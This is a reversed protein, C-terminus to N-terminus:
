FIYTMLLKVKKLCAEIYEEYRRWSKYELEDFSEIGIPDNLVFVYKNQLNCKSSRMFQIMDEIKYVPKVTWGENIYQLAINQVIASKGSGVDCTVLVLNQSNTLNEVEKGAKTEVFQKNGDKWEDIIVQDPSLDTFRM